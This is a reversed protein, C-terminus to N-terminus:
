GYFLNKSLTEHIKAVKESLYKPGIFEVVKVLFVLIVLIMVMIAMSGLNQIANHNEYGIDEM